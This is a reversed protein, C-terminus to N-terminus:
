HPSYVFLFMRLLVSKTSWPNDKFRWCQAGKLARVFPLLDRCEFYISIQKVQNRVATNLGAEQRDLWAM